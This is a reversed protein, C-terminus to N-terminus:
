IKFRWFQKKMSLNEIICNFTELKAITLKLAFNLVEYQFNIATRWIYKWIMYHIINQDDFEGVSDFVAWCISISKYKMVIKGNGKM